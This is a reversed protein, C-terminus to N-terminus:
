LQAVRELAARLRSALGALRVLAGDRGRDGLGSATGVRRQVVRELALYLLGARRTAGVLARDRGGDRGLRAHGRGVLALDGRRDGLVAVRAGLGARTGPLLLEIRHGLLLLVLGEGLAVLLSAPGCSVFAGADRRPTRRQPEYNPAM